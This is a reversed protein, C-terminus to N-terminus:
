PRPVLVSRASAATRLWLIWEGQPLNRAVMADGTIRGKELLHGELDLVSWDVPESSHLQVGSPALHWTLDGPGTAPVPKSVSAPGGTLFADLAKTPKGSNDFAGLTYGQWGNYAEPEWYFVGLGGTVSKTNAVLAKLTAFATDPQDWSMGVESIIVKSGYRSVMDKMNVLCLSDYSRWNTTSPYLSMGIADWTAHNAKLLDFIWRFLSNDYGNSIHVIVIANPDVGKVAAAGASVMAAFNAPNTTAQGDPWLMGNNTENGVQVWEPTVGSDRLATLVDTTHAVLAQELQATTYNAWAAPKTQTGADAWTDSYHFDIMVRFGARHVRAAMKVVDAKNCYGASPNVWVRLRIANIGKAALITLLDKQAGTSDHFQIGSAEMQSLWGIDAGNAFAAASAARALFPCLLLWPALRIPTM